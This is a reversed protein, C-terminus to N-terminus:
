NEEILKTLVATISISAVALVYQQHTFNKTIIIIIVRQFIHLKIEMLANTTTSHFIFYHQACYKNICEM